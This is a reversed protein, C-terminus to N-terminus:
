CPSRRVALETRHKGNRRVVSTPSAVSSSRCRRSRARGPADRLRIHCALRLLGSASRNACTCRCRVTKPRSDEAGIASGNAPRMLTMFTMLPLTPLPRSRRCSSERCADSRRPASCAICPLCSSLTGSAWAPSMMAQTFSFSVCVPSVSQSLALRRDNVVRDLIGFRGDSEGDLRLRPLVFLLDADRQVLNQFFIRRKMERAVRLRFLKQEGTRALKVDFRDDLFQLLTVADFHRQMRRFNRVLFRDRLAGFHLAPVLFLGAAASLKAIAFDDKLRQRAAAPKNEFVLDEAARHRLLKPRRDFFSDDFGRVASRDGTIRQDIEFHLQDVARIVGDIGVLVRKRAAPRLANRAAISFTFGVSSSGIMSTSIAAGCSYLPSMM